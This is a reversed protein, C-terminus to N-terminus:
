RQGTALMMFWAIFALLPGTGVVMGAAYAIAARHWKRWAMFGLPGALVLVAAVGAALYMPELGGNLKESMAWFYALWFAAVPVIWALVGAGVAAALGLWALPKPLPTPADM